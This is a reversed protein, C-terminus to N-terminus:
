VKAVQQAIAGFSFNYNKVESFGLEKFINVLEEQSPFDITSDPLYKYPMSKGNFLKGLLPVLYFFYSYFLLRFIGKPKGIDINIVYGGKKTVRKIELIAEKLNIINRLGYSIFSVDFHGDEFPLNLADGELFKINPINKAKQAAVELMNKSFDVGIIEEIDPYEQALCIAIDGTGTCLDLIKAQPVLSVNKVAKKKIKLNNGLSIIENMFDYNKALSDFMSHIFDKKDFSM